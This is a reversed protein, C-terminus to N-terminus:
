SMVYKQVEYMKEIVRSAYNKAGCSYQELALSLNGQNRELYYRITEAGAEINFAPNYLDNKLQSRFKKWEQPRRSGDIYGLRKAADFATPVQVQMVGYASKNSVAKPQHKSECYGIALLLGPPLGHDFEQEAYLGAILEVEEESLRSNARKIFKAYVGALDMPDMNELARRAVLRPDEVAPILLIGQNVVSDTLAVDASVAETKPKAFVGVGESWDCVFRLFAVSTALVLLVGFFRFM